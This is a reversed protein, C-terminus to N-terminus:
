ISEGEDPVDTNKSLLENLKEHNRPKPCQKMPVYYSYSPSTTPEPRVLTIPYGLICKCEQLAKCGNCDAKMYVQGKHSPM